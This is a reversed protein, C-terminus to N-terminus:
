NVQNSIHRTEGASRERDLRAPSVWREHAPHSNVASEGSAIEQRVVRANGGLLAQRTSRDRGTIEIM